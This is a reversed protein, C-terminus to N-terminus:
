GTTSAISEMRNAVAQPQLKPPEQDSENTLVSFQKGLTLVSSMWIGIVTLLFGAVFPASATLSGFLVLLVQHVVSGGSKGLRSCVGDIAAKGKIKIEPDLPVLAMERTADFVTYKAGRSLCNQITGFFVTIALPTMGLITIPTPFSKMFFFGFFGISTVFLIFPTLFATFTWGCKRVANGTIFLSALTAVIGIAIMVNNMYLTYDAPNPYLTHVEHKWLVEVLNIIMNYSLVIIAVSLLYPSKILFSFNEMMSMRSKPRDEKQSKQFEPAYREQTLVYRNFWRFILLTMIGALIVLNVLLFMSQEWGTTGYPIWSTYKIQCCSVSVQGAVIGSFNAGIGFLGYFRKAEHVRTVHNAFGWFLLSLIINSWLESMVYFTTFSWYRIMAILGRLGAPFILELTDALHHLHLQERLPYAVFIFFAFYALFISIMVYFVGERTFRNSFFTFLYAMLISGPLMVWVKIFPIVEAGSSKATIVISDKLTRLVNYDFSVLFFILLM